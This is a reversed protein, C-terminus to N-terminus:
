NMDLIISQKKVGQDPSKLAPLELKEKEEKTEDTKEEAAKVKNEEVQEEEPEEDDPKDGIVPTTVEKEPIDPTDFAEPPAIPSIEMPPIIADMDSIDSTVPPESTVTNVEEITFFEYKNSEDITLKINYKKTGIEVEKKDLATSNKISQRIEKSIDTGTKLYNIIEDSLIGNEKGYVTILNDTFVKYMENQKVRIANTGLGTTDLISVKIGKIGDKNNKFNYIYDNITESLYLQGKKSDYNLGYNSYNDKILVDYISDIDPIGSSIYDIIDDKFDKSYLEELYQEFILGWKESDDTYESNISSGDNTYFYMNKSTNNSAYTNIYGILNDSIVYFYEGDKEQYNLSPINKDNLTWNADDCVFEGSEDKDCTYKNIYAEIDSKNVWNVDLKDTGPHSKIYLEDSYDYLVDILLTRTLPTSYKFQTIDDIPLDPNNEDVIPVDIVKRNVTLHYIEQKNDIVENEITANGSIVIKKNTFNKFDVVDPATCTIEGLDNNTPLITECVMNTDGYYLKSEINLKQTDYGKSLVSYKLIIKNSDNNAFSNNTVIDINDYKDVIELEQKTTYIKTKYNIVSDNEEKYKSESKTINGFSLINLVVITYIVTKYLKENGKVKFM